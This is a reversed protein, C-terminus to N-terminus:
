SDNDSKLSEKLMKQNKKYVLIWGIDDIVCCLSWLLLSIKLSPLFLMSCMYGIICTIGGVIDSNNDYIEREKEAWLRSKIAMVCKSVFISILNTYILSVIAYIWINWSIFCLYLGLLCGFLSESVAFALFYKLASRRIKGKWLIGIILSTISLSLSEFAIWQAPLESIVVKLLTPQIYTIILGSIILSTLVLKQNNDAKINILSLINQM